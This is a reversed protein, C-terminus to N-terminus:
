EGLVMLQWFRWIKDVYDITERSHRGTVDPLCTIIRPYLNEGGCLTQAALINGIGGNYSALALSHRDQEPRPASWEARLRGMYFAAAEIALEPVFASAGKPFGLQRSVQDWTAPMFQTIGMAGVPSVADVKFRSEQWSQAKLLRWDVGPM